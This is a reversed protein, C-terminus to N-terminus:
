EALLNNFFTNLWTWSCRHTHQTHASLNHTYPIIINMFLFIKKAAIHLWMKRKTWKHSRNIPWHKDLLNCINKWCNGFHLFFTDWVKWWACSIFWSVCACVCVCLCLSAPLFLWLFCLFNLRHKWALALHPRFSLSASFHLLFPCLWLHTCILTAGFSFDQLDWPGWRNVSFM